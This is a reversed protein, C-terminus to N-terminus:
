YCLDDTACIVPVNGASQLARLRNVIADWDSPAVRITTMGPATTTDSPKLATSYELAPRWCEQIVADLVRPEACHSPMGKAPAVRGAPHLRAHSAALQKLNNVFRPPEDGSPAGSLTALANRQAAGVIAHHQALQDHAHGGTQARPGYCGVAIFNGFCYSDLSRQAVAAAEWSADGVVRSVRRAQSFDMLVATVGERDRKAILHKAAWFCMDGHVVRRSHMARVALSAGILMDWGARRRCQSLDEQGTTSLCTAGLFVSRNSHRIAVDDRLSGLPLYELLLAGISPRESSNREVHWWRRETDLETGSLCSWKKGRGVHKQLLALDISASGFFQEVNRSEGLARLVREEREMQESHTHLFLKLAMLKSSTNALLVSGTKGTGLCRLLQLGSTNASLAHASSRRTHRRRQTACVVDVLLVTLRFALARPAMM